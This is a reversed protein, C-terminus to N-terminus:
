CDPSDGTLDEVLGAFVPLSCCGADIRRPDGLAVLECNSRDGNAFATGSGSVREYLM